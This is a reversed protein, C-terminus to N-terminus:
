EAACSDVVPPEEFRAGISDAFNVVRTIGINALSALIPCTAEAEKAFQEFRVVDIGPVKGAITLVVNEIVARESCVDLTLAVDTDLYDAVFGAMELLRSMAMTISSAVSAALLEEPSTGRGGEYSSALDYRYDNLARRATSIHGAGFRYSGFWKASGSHNIQM